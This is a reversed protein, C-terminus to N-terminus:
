SARAMAGPLVEVDDITLDASIQGRRGDEFVVETDIHCMDADSYLAEILPSYREAIIRRRVKRTRTLEGDDADLEKHLVLFRKIQSSALQPDGALDANVRGICDKVLGYVQPHAALEQYSAYSINNREAWNSVADLDINIFAAAYDREHGFTVAEAIQPFFKLKNELYKPAFMAGDNLRGVDKARDIIRLHGDADLVGADGTHVWGDETKTERTAEENKYYSRFVGPSRYLVEGNDAIRLEVQPAAPGVTDPRVQDDPQITVFVAAETQGYLQKINIGLSRYFDFIEGGIAEGATYALRIRSFGLTNKLPGYVLLNGLWYMFRDGSSVPKGELIGVGVRKALKMFYHYMRQKIFTADEIRISVTTLLNEFVAPPAFYYTPGIEKLDQMVTAASEPCNVCFGAVYSQGFSFIHDGVWAMPLYALVEDEVTLKEFEVSSRAAFLVNGHTLIVGKPNGTTGSTYLIIAVDAGTGRAVQEDYHAPNDAAFARGQEQVSRYSHLFPQDYHRMGRPDDYVIVELSPCQGKIELLKDVQEQDEAIAFRAEAHEVVFQLEKAVSDQYMPVPVGGLAQTACMAGYLRPRNSGLIALKDGREFGLAVLGCALGEIETKLESWTWSQWIGYEKERAAHRDAFRRANLALLKPFTDLRAAAGASAPPDLVGATM